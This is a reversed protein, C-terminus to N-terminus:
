GGLDQPGQFVPDALIRRDGLRMVPQHRRDLHHAVADDVLPYFGGLFGVVALFFANIIQRKLEEDPSQHPVSEGIDTKQLVHAGSQLREAHFQVHNGAELRVGREAIATEATESGTEHLRHRGDAHGRMAVADAICISHEALLDGVAPLDLKGFVPEVVAVRPLELAALARELDAEAAM